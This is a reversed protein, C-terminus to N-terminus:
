SKNGIEKAGSEEGEEREERERKRGDATLLTAQFADPLINAEHPLSLDTHIHAAGPLAMVSTSSSSTPVDDLATVYETDPVFLAM